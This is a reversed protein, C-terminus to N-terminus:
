AAAHFLRVMMVADQGQPYFRKKLQKIEFGRSEFLKQAPLNDSATHLFLMEATQERASNEINKMLLTGIGNKHADPVVAIALCEFIRSFLGDGSSQGLMAFGVPRQGAYALITMTMGSLYWRVLTEDYPGYQQFVQQSLNQIFHADSDVGNLIKVPGSFGKKSLQGSLTFPRKSISM